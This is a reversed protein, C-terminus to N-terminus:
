PKKQWLDGLATLFQQVSFPKSLVADAGLKEAWQLFDASGPSGGSIAMIRMEPQERRIEMITEIGEKRPMMIDTIVADYDGKRLIKLGEVGDAAPVAQHGATNLIGIVTDRVLDDDEIVVVRRRNLEDTGTM